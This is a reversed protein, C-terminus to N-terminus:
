LVEKAERAEKSQKFLKSVLVEKVEGAEKLQRLTQTVFSKPSISRAWIAPFNSFSHKKGLFDARGNRSISARRRWARIQKEERKLRGHFQLQLLLVSLNGGAPHFVGLVEPRRLPASM